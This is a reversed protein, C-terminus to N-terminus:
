DITLKGREKLIQWSVARLQDRSLKEQAWIGDKFRKFEDQEEHFFSGFRM